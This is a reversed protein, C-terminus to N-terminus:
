LGSMWEVVRRYVARRHLPAVDPMEGLPRWRWESFEAPEHTHEASVHIESDQGTFRFAAWRQEQGRFPHLKHGPAGRVPFDYRWASGTVALLDASTVGTEEWLERRAAAVIEEGPDIGGQPMCWDAGNTFVEPDPWGWPNAFSRGAFVLGAANILVIGVNPRYPLDPHLPERVGPAPPASAAEIRASM